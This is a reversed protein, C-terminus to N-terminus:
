SADECQWQEAQNAANRWSDAEALLGDRELANAIVRAADPDFDGRVVWERRVKEPEPMNASM